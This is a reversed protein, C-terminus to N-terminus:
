NFTKTVTVKIFADSNWLGSMIRARELTDYVPIPRKGRNEFDWKVVYGDFSGKEIAINISDSMGLSSVPM